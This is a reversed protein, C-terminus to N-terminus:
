QQGKMKRYFNLILKSTEASLFSFGEPIKFLISNFTYILKLLVSIKMNNVKPIQSCSIYRWKISITLKGRYHKINKLTSIKYMKRCKLNKHQQLHCKEIIKNEYLKNNIYLFMNLYLYIYTCFYMSIIYLSLINLKKNSM